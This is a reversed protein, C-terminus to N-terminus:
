PINIEVGLQEALDKLVKKKEDLECDKQNTEEDYKKAKELLVELDKIRRELEKIRSEEKPWSQPQYTPEKMWGIGHEMVMSYVCMFVGIIFINTNFLPNM